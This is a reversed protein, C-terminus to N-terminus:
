VTSAVISGISILGIIILITKHASKASQHDITCSSSSSCMETISGDDNEVCRISTGNSFSKHYYSFLRPYNYLFIALLLWLISELVITDKAVQLMGVFSVDVGLILMSKIALICFMLTLIKITAWM